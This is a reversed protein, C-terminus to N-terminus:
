RRKEELYGLGEELLARVHPDVLRYFVMKGEKRHHVLGATRLLRLQHSIASPSMELLTALDCVCLTEASLALVIRMRTPDGLLKFLDALSFVAQDSPMGLQANAIKDEHVCTLQCIDQPM